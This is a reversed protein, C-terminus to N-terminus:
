VISSCGTVATHVIITSHRQREAGGSAELQVQIKNNVDCKRWIDTEHTRYDHEETAM